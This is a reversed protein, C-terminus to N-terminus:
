KRQPWLKQRRELYKVRKTIFATIIFGDEKSIERYIVILYKGEKIPRVAICEGEKGKYIAEPDSVVELVEFYYGAIENHEETIHAWREETLRISVKNKSYVTNM